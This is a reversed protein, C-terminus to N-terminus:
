VFVALVCGDDEKCAESLNFELFGMDKILYAQYQWIVLAKVNVRIYFLGMGSAQLRFHSAWGQLRFSAQLTFGM